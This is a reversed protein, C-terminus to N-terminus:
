DTYPIKVHYNDTKIITEMCKDTAQDFEFSEYFNIVALDVDYEKIYQCAKSYDVDPRELWSYQRKAIQFFEENIRSAPYYYQARAFIQYTNPFFTKFGELQSIVSIQHDQPVLEYARITQLVKLEEPDLKTIPDVDKGKSYHFAYSTFRDIPIFLYCHFLLLSIVIFGSILQKSLAFSHLMDNIAIIYIVATFPNLIIDFARYYVNYTYLVSISTITLPNLFILMAFLLTYGLYNNEKKYTKIIIYIVAIWKAIILFKDLPNAYIGFPDVTMDYEAHNAFYNFFNIEYYPNTVMIYASHIIFFIPVIILFVINGYKGLFNDIIDLFKQSVKSFSFIYYAIAAIAIILALLLSYYSVFAIMYLVLPFVIYSLTKFTNPIKKYYLYTMLLYVIDFSIFLFSSSSALGAGIIAIIPFLPIHENEQYKRYLEFILMGVMLTRFTNGYFAFAVRWYYFNYLLTVFAIIAWKFYQKEYKFHDIVNLIFMTSILSYISGLGWIIITINEVIGGIHLFNYPANILWCMFSAFYYYGQYLYFIDPSEFLKGNTFSFQGLHEININQTIYNLYVQTDTLEMGIYCHYFIYIFLILCIIVWLIKIKFLNKLIEKCHILAYITGIGIIAMSIIMLYKSDIAFFQLPYYFLQLIFLLSIFGIPAYFGSSHYKTIKTVGIGIGTSIFIIYAVFLAIKIM